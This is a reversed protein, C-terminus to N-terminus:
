RRDAMVVIDNTVGKVGPIYRVVCEAASREVKHPANGSITLWGHEVSLRVRLGPLLKERELAGMAQSAIRDDNQVTGVSPAALRTTSAQPTTSRENMLM